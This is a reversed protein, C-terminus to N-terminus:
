EDSPDEHPPEPARDAVVARALQFFELLVTLFGVSGLSVLHSATERRQISRRVREYFVPDDALSFDALEEVPSDDPFAGSDPNPDTAM